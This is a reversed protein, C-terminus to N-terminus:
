GRIISAITDASLHSNYPNSATMKTYHKALVQWTIPVCELHQDELETISVERIDVGLRERWPM